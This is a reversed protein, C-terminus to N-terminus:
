NMQRGDNVGCWFAELLLSRPQVQGEGQPQGLTRAGHKNRLIPLSLVAQQGNRSMAAIVLVEQRQPHESPRRDPMPGGPSIAVMWAESILIAIEIPQSGLQRGVQYLRRRRQDSDDDAALPIVEDERGTIILHLLPAVEQPAAYYFLHKVNPLLRTLLQDLQNM